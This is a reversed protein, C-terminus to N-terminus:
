SWFGVRAGPPGGESGAQPPEYDGDLIEELFDLHGEYQAETSLLGHAKLIPDLVPGFEELTSFAEGDIVYTPKAVESLM